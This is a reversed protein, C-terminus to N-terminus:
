LGLLPPVRAAHRMASESLDISLVPPDGFSSVKLTESKQVLVALFRHIFVVQIYV